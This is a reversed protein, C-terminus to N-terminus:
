YTLTSTEDCKMRSTKFSDPYIKKACNLWIMIYDNVGSFFLFSYNGLFFYDGIQKM